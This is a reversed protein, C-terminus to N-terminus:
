NVKKVVFVKFLEGVRDDLVGIVVVDEIVLYFVFFVEFEVLFVQVLIFIVGDFLFIDFNFCINYDILVISIVFLLVM